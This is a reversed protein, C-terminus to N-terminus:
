RSGKKRALAQQLESRARRLRTYVTNVPTDTLEAIQPATLEEIEALVLLARKDDDLTDLASNLVNVQQSREASDAPSPAHDRLDNELPETNQVRRHKRRHDCAIRYAIAFLWTRVAHRGDFESLRRHVVMFVDQVADEVGADSIGMGRLVRWVFSVHETYVADFDLSVHAREALHERPEVDAPSLAEAEVRHEHEPHAFGNM